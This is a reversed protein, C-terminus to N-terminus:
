QVSSTFLPTSDSVVDSVTVAEKAPATSTTVAVKSKLYSQSGDNVVACAATESLKFLM